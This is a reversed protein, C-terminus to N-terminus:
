EVVVKNLRMITTTYNAIRRVCYNYKGKKFKKTAENDIAVKLINTGVTEITHIINQYQDTFCIAIKDGPQITIPNDNDDTFTLEFELEFTDGEYWRIIGDECIRPSQEACKVM